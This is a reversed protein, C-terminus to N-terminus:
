RVSRTERSGEPLIAALYGDVSRDLSFHAGRERPDPQPSRLADAIAKALASTDGVPVIRGWRGGELIETPGDTATTVVPTGLAMAEVISNGFGEWISASVFVSARAMYPLPNPDFGPMVVDDAIGLDAALAELQDREPGEGLIMLRASRSKVVEAFARILVDFGKVPRLRGAALVLPIGDDHLAIRSPLEARTRFQDDIIPNYITVIKEPPLRFATILDDRVGDSITIIRDARPYVVRALARTARHRFQRNAKAAKGIPLRVSIVLRARSRALWRALAAVVNAQDLASLIVRPRNARLYRVLPWIAGATRGAGLDVIQVAPDVMAVWPGHKKVVVLDVEYGRKAFGNALLVFSREAGGGTLSPLFLCLRQTLDTM